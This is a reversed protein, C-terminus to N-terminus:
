LVRVALVAVDDGREAVSRRETLRLVLDAASERGGSERLLDLLVTIGTDIDRGREEVLGDTYLVLTSGVPVVVRGEDRVPGSEDREEDGHFPVGVIRSASTTLIQVAGDPGLLLPPPHGANAWVFEADGSPDPRTLRGYACTALSAMQLSQVLQDLQELVAAPRAGPYAYSRLVSRLQGMAAAAALDHGMVDGIAIGVGLDDRLRLVDYWDGGVASRATAPLYRASVDLGEIPALTPLLARQLTEAAQHEGAFLRANDLALGARAAVDSLVEVEGPGFGSAEADALLVLVGLARGRATIPALAAAAAGLSEVLRGLSGTGTAARLQEVPVAVAAGEGRLLRSVPHDPAFPGLDDRAGDVLARIHDDGAAGPHLVHASTRGTSEDLTVVVAWTGLRPVVLHLLLDVIEAPDLSAALRNTTAALLALRDRAVQVETLERERRQDAEVRETVDVQVGVFHTIEGSGDLVPSISVRNWFPVGDSRYNLLTATIPTGAAVADRIEAVVTRDTDPGQLFRCNHGLVEASTRGSVELFAPNVWILPNDPQAPDSITISIRTALLARDRLSAASEQAGAVAAAQRVPLFLVVAQRGLAGPADALPLGVVWLPERREFGANARAATVAEGMVPEGRAVRSLPRGRGPREVDGRDGALDDGSIDELGAARSWDDVSLPLRMGPALDAALSNAFVVDGSDLDVLLVAAPTGHVVEPVVTAAIPSRQRLDSLSDGSPNSRVDGADAAAQM